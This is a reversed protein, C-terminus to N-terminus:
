STLLRGKEQCLEGETGLSVNILFACIPQLDIWECKDFVVRVPRDLSGFVNLFAIRNEKWHSDYWRDPCIYNSM